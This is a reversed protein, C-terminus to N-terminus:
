IHILSLVQGKGKGDSLNLRVTDKDVSVVKVVCPGVKVSEGAGYAGSVRPEATLWVETLSPTAFEKM